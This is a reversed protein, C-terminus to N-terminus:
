CFIFGQLYYQFILTIQKSFLSAAISFLFAVTKHSPYMKRSVLLFSGEGKLKLEIKPSTHMGAIGTPSHPPTTLKNAMHWSLVPVSAGNDM